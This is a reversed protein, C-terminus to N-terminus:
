KTKRGSCGCDGGKRQPPVPRSIVPLKAAVPALPPITALKTKIADVVTAVPIDMMCKHNFPCGDRLGCPKLECRQPAEIIDFPYDHNWNWVENFGSQIVIGNKTLGSAAHTTGTDIGVYLRSKKVANFMKMGRLPNVDIWSIGAATLAEKLEAGKPYFRYPSWEGGTLCLAVDAGVVSPDDVYRL